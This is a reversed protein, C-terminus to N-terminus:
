RRRSLHFRFLSCIIFSTAPFYMLFLAVFCQSGYFGLGLRVNIELRLMDVSYGTHTRRSLFMWGTCVIAFLNVYKDVLLLAGIACQFHYACRIFLSINIRGWMREWRIDRGFSYHSTHREMMMPSVRMETILRTGGGGFVPQLEPSDNLHVHSDCLKVTEEPFAYGMKVCVSLKVFFM